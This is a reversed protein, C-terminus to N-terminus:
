GVPRHTSALSAYLSPVPWPRPRGSRGRGPAGRARDGAQPAQERAAHLRPLPSSGEGMGLSPIGSPHPCPPHPPASGPAPGLRGPATLPASLPGTSGSSTLRRRTGERSWWGGVRHCSLVSLGENRQEAALSRDSSQTRSASGLSRSFAPTSPNTPSPSPLLPRVGSRGVASSGNLRLEMRLAWFLPQCM